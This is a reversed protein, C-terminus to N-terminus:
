WNNIQADLWSSHRLVFSKVKDVHRQHRQNYSQAMLESWREYNRAVLNNQQIYKTQKDILAWVNKDALTSQRLQQWRQKVLAKFSPSQLLKAWWFPVLWDDGKCYSNYAYVWADKKLGECFTNDPDFAMDCDWIPGIKLKENPKKSFFTSIRYGDHNQMYETILFYDVFSDLDIYHTYGSQLDDFQKSAMAAEFDHIYNQIAIKKSESLKKVKPYHYLYHIKSSATPKGNYEFKSSFGIEETFDYQGAGGGEAKDIKLIIGDNEVKAGDMKVDVRQKGAKIKEMLLYCGLYDNNLMLEVMRYRTAYHGMQQWLETALSNRIFSRDNQSGILVWDDNAPMGLLELNQAVGSSDRLEFAYSKKEAMQSMAGRIEIGIPSKLLLSDNRQIELSALVKPENEIEKKTSIKLLAINKQRPTSIEALPKQKQCNNMIAWLLLGILLKM